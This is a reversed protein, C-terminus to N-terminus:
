LQVSLDVVCQIAIDTEHRIVADYQDDDVEPEIRLSAM